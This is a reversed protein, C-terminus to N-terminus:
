RKNIISYLGKIVIGALGGLFSVFSFVLSLNLYDKKNFILPMTPTTPHLILYMRLCVLFMALFGFLLSGIILKDIFKYSKNEKQALAMAIGALILVSLFSWGGEFIWHGIVAAVISAIIAVVIVPLFKKLYSTKM